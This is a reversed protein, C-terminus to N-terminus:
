KLVIIIKQYSKAAFESMRDTMLGVDSRLVMLLVRALKNLWKVSAKQALWLLSKTDHTNEKQFAAV